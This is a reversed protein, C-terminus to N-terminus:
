GGCGELLPTTDVVPPQESCGTGYDHLGFAFRTRELAGTRTSVVSVVIHPTGIWPAGSAPETVHIRCTNIMAGGFMEFQYHEGTVAPDEYYYTVAEVRPDVCPIPITVVYDYAPRTCLQRAGVAGTLPIGLDPHTGGGVGATASCNAITQPDESNCARCLRSDICTTEVCPPEEGVVSNICEGSACGGTATPLLCADPAYCGSAKIDGSSPDCHRLDDCDEAGFADCDPNTSSPVVAITRPRTGRPRSWRVCDNNMGWREYDENALPEIDILYRHLADSPVEFDFLEAAGVEQGERSVVILAYSGLRKNTENYPILYNWHTERPNKTARLADDEVATRELLLQSEVPQFLSRRLRVPTLPTEFGAEEGFFVEVHDFEIDGSAELMAGYPDDHCAGIGLLSVALLVVRM